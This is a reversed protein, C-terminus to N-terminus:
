SVVLPIARHRFFLIRSDKAADTVIGVIILSLVFALLAPVPSLRFPVVIDLAAGTGGLFLDAIGYGNGVRLWLWALLLSTCTAALSLAVSEVMGRLLIEDSQWGTAKLIGIERRPICFQCSAPQQLL